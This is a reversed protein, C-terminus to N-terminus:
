QSAKTKRLRGMMSYIGTFLMHIEHTSATAHLNSAPNSNDKAAQHRLEELQALNAAEMKRTYQRYTMNKLEAVYKDVTNEKAETDNYCFGM